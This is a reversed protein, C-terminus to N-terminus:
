MRNSVFGCCLFRCECKGATLTKGCGPPGYLLIILGEGKVRVMDNGRIGHFSYQKVLDALIMKQAPDIQLEDTANKKWDINILKDIDFKGWDKETLSYGLAMAPCFLAQHDTPIYDETNKRTTWFDDQSNLVPPPVNGEKFPQSSKDDDINSAEDNGMNRAMSASYLTADLDPYTETFAAHDLVTRGSLQIDDIIPVSFPILL